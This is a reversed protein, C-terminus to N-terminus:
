RAGLNPLVIRIRTNGTIKVDHERLESDNIEVLDYRRCDTISKNTDNRDRNNITHKARGSGNCAIFSTRGKEFFIESVIRSANSVSLRQSLTEDNKTLILYSYKLALRLTGVEDDLYQIFEPREWQVESHCWDDGALAPCHQQHTCPAYVTLGQEIALDHLKLLRRSENQSAPEIFIVAGDEHLNHQCKNIIVEESGDPLENLVNMMVILDYKGEPLDTKIIDRSACNVNVTLPVEAKQLLTAADRVNDHSSDVLTVQLSECHTYEALYYIVGLSAAGSGCGIDLMNLHRVDKGQLWEGLPQWIKMLNTTTYYLRYADRLLPKTMYRDDKPVSTRGTLYESLEAIPKIFKQLSKRGERTRLYEGDLRLGTEAEIIRIYNDPVILKRRQM